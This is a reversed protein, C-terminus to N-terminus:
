KSDWDDPELAALCSEYDSLLETFLTELEPSIDEKAKIAEFREQYSM